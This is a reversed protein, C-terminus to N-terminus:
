ERGPRLSGVYVVSHSFCHRTLLKSAAHQLCFWQQYVNFPTEVAAVIIIIITDLAVTRVQLGLKRFGVYPHSM